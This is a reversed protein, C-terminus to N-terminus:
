CVYTAQLDGGNCEGRQEGKITKPTRAEARVRPTGSYQVPYEGGNKQFLPIPANQRDEPVSGM